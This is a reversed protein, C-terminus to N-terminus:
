KFYILHFNVQILSQMEEQALKTEEELRSQESTIQDLRSKRKEALRSKLAEEHERRNKAVIEDLQKMELEHARRLAELRDL